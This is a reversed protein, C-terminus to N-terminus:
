SPWPQSSNPPFSSQGQTESSWISGRPSLSQVGPASSGARWRAGGAPPAPSGGFSGRRLRRVGQWPTQALTPALPPCKPATGGRATM